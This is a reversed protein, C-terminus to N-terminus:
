GFKPLDALSAGSITADVVAAYSAQAAAEAQGVQVAPAAASVGALPDVLVARVPLTAQAPARVEKTLAQSAGNFSTEPLQPGSVAGGTAAVVADDGVLAPAAHRSASERHSYTLPPQDTESAGPEYVVSAAGTEAGATTGAVSQTANPTQAYPALPGAPAHIPQIAGIGAISLSM